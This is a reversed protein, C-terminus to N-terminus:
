PKPASGRRSKLLLTGGVLLSGVAGVGVAAIEPVSHAPKPGHEHDGRDAYASSSLVALLGLGGVFGLFRGLISKM